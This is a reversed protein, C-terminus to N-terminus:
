FVWVSVTPTGASAALQLFRGPNTDQTWVIDFAGTQGKVMFVGVPERGLGHTVRQPTTTLALDAVLVGQTITAGALANVGRQVEREILREIHAMSTRVGAEDPKRSRGELDGFAVDYWARMVHGNNITVPQMPANPFVFNVALSAPLRLEPVIAEFDHGDAGLGHMWIVAAQAPSGKPGTALEITELLGSNDPM